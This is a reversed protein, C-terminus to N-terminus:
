NALVQGRERVAARKGAIRVAFVALIYAAFPWHSVDNIALGVSNAAFIAWIFYIGFVHLRRWWKPGLWAASRDFSTAVMAAILLYGFGGGVYTVMNTHAHFYVPNVFALGTVAGGHIFHSFAFSLALYRRNRAIWGTWPNPWLRVASSACFVLGFLILSAGATLHAVSRLGETSDSYTNFDIWSAALIAIGFVAILSWGTFLARVSV